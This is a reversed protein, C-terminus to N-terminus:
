NLSKFIANGFSLCDDSYLLFLMRDLRSQQSVGEEEGDVILDPADDEMLANEGTACLITCSACPSPSQSSHRRYTLRGHTGRRRAQLHHGGITVSTM